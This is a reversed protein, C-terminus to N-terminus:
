TPINYIIVIVPLHTTRNQKDTKKADTNTKTEFDIPAQEDVRRWGAAHRQWTRNCYIVAQLRRPGQVRM